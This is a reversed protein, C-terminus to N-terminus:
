TTRALPRRLTGESWALVAAPALTLFALGLAWAFTHAFATAPDLATRMQGQLIRSGLVLAVIALSLLYGTAVWQITTLSTNLDRALTDLAVNVITADLISMMAGFIVVGAVVVTGRDLPDGPRSPPASTATM